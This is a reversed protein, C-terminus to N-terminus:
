LKTISIIASLTSSYVDMSRDVRNILGFKPITQPVSVNHKELKTGEQFYGVGTYMCYELGQYDLVRQGRETLRKKIGEPDSHFELPYGQLKTIPKNGSWYGLKVEMKDFAYGEGDFIIEKCVINLHPQPKSEYATDVIKFLRETDRGPHYLIADKKYYIWALKYNILGSAQLNRVLTKTQGFIDGMVKLLLLLQQKIPSSEPTSAHLASIEDASFYLARFPEKFVAVESEELYVGEKKVIPKLAAVLNPNQIELMHYKLAFKGSIVPKSLDKIKYVKIGIRDLKMAAKKSMQRPPFEVWNYTDEQSHPGEYYIRAVPDIGQINEPEKSKEASGKQLQSKPDDISSLDCDSTFDSVHKENNHTMSVWKDRIGSTIINLGKM